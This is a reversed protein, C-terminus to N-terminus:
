EESRREGYSCYDTELMSTLHKSCWLCGKYELKEANVCEECRVVKVAYDKEILKDAVQDCWDDPLEIPIKIQAM